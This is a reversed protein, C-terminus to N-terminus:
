VSLGIKIKAKELECIYKIFMERDKDSNDFSFNTKETLIKDEIFLNVMTQYGQKSLETQVIASNELVKARDAQPITYEYTGSGNNKISAKVSGTNFWINKVQLFDAAEKLLATQLFSTPNDEKEFSGRDYWPFGQAGISYVYKKDVKSLVNLYTRYRGAGGDEKQNFSKTNPLITIKATPFYKTLSASYNNFMLGFNTEDWNPNNWVAYPDPASPLNFEPFPLVLGLDEDSVGLNKLQLHFSDFATNLEGNAIRDFSIGTPELVLILKLGYAKHANIQDRVYGAINTIDTPNEHLSAFIMAYSAFPREYLDDYYAAKKVKANGSSIKNPLSANTPSIECDCEKIYKGQSDRAAQISFASGAIILVTILIFGLFKITISNKSFFNNKIKTVM